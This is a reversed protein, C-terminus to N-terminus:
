DNKNTPKTPHTTETDNALLSHSTPLHNAKASIDVNSEVVAAVRLYIKFCVNLELVLNIKPHVM